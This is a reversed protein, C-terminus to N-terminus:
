LEATLNTMYLDSGDWDARYLDPRWGNVVDWIRYKNFGFDWVLAHAQIHDDSPSPKIWRGGETVNYAILVPLPQEDAAAASKEQSPVTSDGRLFLGDVARQYLQYGSLIEGGPSSDHVSDVTLKIGSRESTENVGTQYIMLRDVSEWFTEGHLSITGPWYHGNDTRYFRVKAFHTM